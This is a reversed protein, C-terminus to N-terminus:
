RWPDWRVPVRLQLSSSKCRRTTGGGLGGVNRRHYDQGRTIENKNEFLFEELGHTCCTKM